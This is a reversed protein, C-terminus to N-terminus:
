KKLNLNLGRSKIASSFAKALTEGAKKFDQNNNMEQTQITINEISISSSNSDFNNASQLADRLKAFLATQEANLIAEPSSNSGHVMAPGTYDVLGGKKYPTGPYDGFFDKINYDDFYKKRETEIDM